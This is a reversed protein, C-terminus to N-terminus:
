EHLKTLVINIMGRGSLASSLLYKLVLLSNPSMIEYCNLGILPISNM